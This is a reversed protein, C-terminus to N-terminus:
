AFMQAQLAFPDRVRLDKCFSTLHRGYPSINMQGVGPIVTRTGLLDVPSLFFYSPHLEISQEFGLLRSLDRLSGSELRTWPSPDITM